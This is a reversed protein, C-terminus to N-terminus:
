DHRLFFASRDILRGQKLRFFMGDGQSDVTTFNSGNTLRHRQATSGNLPSALNTRKSKLFSHLRKGPCNCNTGSAPAVNLMAVVAARHRPFGM